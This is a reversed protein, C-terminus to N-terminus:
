KTVIAIIEDISMNSNLQYSGQKVATELNKAKLDKMFAEANDIIKTKELRQAVEQSSTGSPVDLLLQYIVKEEQPEEAEQGANDKLENYETETLIIMDNQDAFAKIENESISDSSKEQAQESPKTKDNEGHYYFFYSLVITAILLGSALGRVGNKTM